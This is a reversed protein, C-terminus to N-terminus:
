RGRGGNLILMADGFSYFRYREEVAVRYAEQMLGKGGFSMVMALLSAPSAGLALRVGFEQTRQNVSFAIVGALGAALGAGIGLGPNQAVLKVIEPDQFFALM